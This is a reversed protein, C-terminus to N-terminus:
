AQGNSARPGPSVIITPLDLPLNITISQIPGGPARVISVGRGPQPSGIQVPGAAPATGAVNAGTPQMAQVVEIGRQQFTQTVDIRINQTVAQFAPTQLAPVEAPANVVAVVAAQIQAAVTAATNQTLAALQDALAETSPANTLVQQVQVRTQAPLQALAAQVDPLTLAQRIGAQQEASIEAAVADGVRDPSVVFAAAMALAIASGALLAQIKTRM